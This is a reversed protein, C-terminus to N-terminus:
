ERDSVQRRVAELYGLGQSQVASLVKPDCDKLHVHWVRPGYDRLMGLPDGNGYICHGTDLVLGLLDARTLSM